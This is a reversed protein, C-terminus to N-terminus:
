GVIRHKQKNLDLVRQISYIDKKNWNIEVFKIFSFIQTQM